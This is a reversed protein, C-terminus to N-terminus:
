SVQRIGWLSMICENTSLPILAARLASGNQNPKIYPIPHATWSHQIRTHM